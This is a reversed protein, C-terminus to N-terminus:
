FGEQITQWSQSIKITLVIKHHPSQLVFIIDNGIDCFSKFRNRIKQLLEVIQHLLEVISSISFGTVLKSSYM